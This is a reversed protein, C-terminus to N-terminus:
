GHDDGALDLILRGDLHDAEHLAIRAAIGSLELVTELGTLDFCRLSIACPRRVALSRGPISLCAEEATETEPSRTLIDPDLVVLPSPQGDKWGPDMVFIRLAHGIQPAALGRGGAHYMTALLDAALDRLQDSGLVGAPECRRRLIPDPHLRLPQVRGRAALRALDPPQAGGALDEPTLLEPM